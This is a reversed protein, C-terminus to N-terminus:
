VKQSAWADRHVALAWNGTVFWQATTEDDYVGSATGATFAGWASAEWGPVTHVNNAAKQSEEFDANVLEVEVPTFPEESTGETMQTLEFDDAMCWSVSDAPTSLKIAISTCNAPLTAELAIDNKIANTDEFTLTASETDIVEGAANLMEISLVTTSGTVGRM